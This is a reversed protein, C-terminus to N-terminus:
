RNIARYFLNGAPPEQDVYQFLGGSPANTTTMQAWAPTGTLDQTREIGYLYGPVGAFIMTPKGEVLGYSVLNYNTGTPDPQISIVVTGSATTAGDSVTYTFRDTVNGGPPVSYLVFTANTYIPAGNTSTASVGALTLTDGNVDTANALLDSIRVKLAVNRPRTYTATNAVPAADAVNFVASSASTLGSASATLQKAGAPDIRLNTYSVTGNGATSGIDLVTTGQLAGSGSSLTITVNLSPPLGVTSANGYQDETRLVPQQGFPTGPNASGPQTTFALQAVTGPTIAATLTPQTLTYNAAAGGTLSLGSVTVTKGSGVTATAFSATYGNTSLAVNAADGGLVGSLVVTNSRITATTTGDYVKDDAAIGSAITVAVPTIDATTAATTSSLTYNGAKAGSLGLGTATVTKGTGANANDFAATGGSLSVDDSNIVGTLSYSSITASTNGDYPKNNAAIGGTVTKAGASITHSVPTAANWNANGTQAAEIEISGAGTITLTNGSVSAPGSLVAFSVTLGSSATATLTIPAVGYTQNGPTTFTITQNGANVTTASGTNATIAPHTVDSATVTQSGSTMFTLGLSATGSSLAADTPLTANGDSSTLRVTDNTGILNWHADVANVTVSCAANVTQAAPAGTKGSASGPAATEGPMLVQLKAFAGPRVAFSGSAGASLTDGSARTAALVVGSEAKTYTIGTFTVSSSGATITGTLTGGLTGGGTQVSLTIGTDATVNAALGNVDRARAVVNFPVGASPEVGGNVSTIELSTAPEVVCDIELGWGLVTTDGGGASVDAIFLTWDGNPAQGDFADLNAAGPADFAAPASLPDIGRADPRWTGTIWGSGNYTPSFRQYFHVDESGASSLTVNMGPEAYAFVNTTTLGVRNLLIATGNSHVLYAYLDGAYGGSLNLTVRVDSVHHVGAGTVTRTDSWGNLSGDPIVGGNRLGTTYTQSFYPAAWAGLAFSVSLLIVWSIKKM